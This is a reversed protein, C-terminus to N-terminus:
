AAAVAEIGLFAFASKGLDRVLKIDDSIRAQSLVGEMFAFLARAKGTVDDIRLGEARADRLASEYYKTYLTLIHQVKRGIQTSQDLEYGIKCWFCGVIRGHETRMRVQRQYVDAFYNRLRALPPITPSFLADLTPKRTEWEAELATIVLEDKSRFFHYFSGKRVGARDCIADVSAAGYSEARLLDITAAILRERADSVRGM